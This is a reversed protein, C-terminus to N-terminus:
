HVHVKHFIQVLEDYHEDITYQNVGLTFFIMETQYQLLKFVRSQVDLYALTLKPHLLHREKTVDNKSSPFNTLEYLVRFTSLKSVGALTV